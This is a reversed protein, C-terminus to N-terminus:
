GPTERQIEGAANGREGGAIARDRPENGAQAGVTVIHEEVLRRLPHVGWVAPQEGRRQHVGIGAARAGDHDGAVQDGLDLRQDGSDDDDVMPPQDGDIRGLGQTVLDVPDLSWLLLDIPIRTPVAQRNEGARRDCPRGARDDKGASALGVAIGATIGHSDSGRSRGSRVHRDATDAQLVQENSQGIIVTAM